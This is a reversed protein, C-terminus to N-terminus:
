RSVDIEVRRSEVGPDDGTQGRGQRVIRSPAVGNAVLADAVHQARQQSLLLDARPSAASDTYGYVTVVTDPMANARSAAHAIIPEAITDVTASREQFYVIFDPKSPRELISCSALWCLIPIVWLQSM